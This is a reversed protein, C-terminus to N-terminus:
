KKLRGRLLGTGLFLAWKARDPYFAKVIVLKWVVLWVKFADILTRNPCLLFWQRVDKKIWYTSAERICNSAQESLSRLKPNATKWLSLYAKLLKITDDRRRPSFTASGQLVRRNYGCYAIKLFSEISLTMEYLYLADERFRIGRAFRTNKVKEARYFNLWPFGCRSIIRWGESIVTEGSLLVNEGVKLCQTLPREGDKWEYDGGAVHIWDVNADKTGKVIRELWDIAWVDDGDLFGIWEGKVNDLALNRAASVGANPQHFVRFRPDRTAYEDLIAGSEDTSGDDVCLCEWNSFTQALVSDLCERLYPAVNYIPIIISFVPKMILDNINLM